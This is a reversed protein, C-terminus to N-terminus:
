AKSGSKPYVILCAGKGQDAAPTKGGKAEFWMPYWKESPIFQFGPQIDKVVVGRPYVNKVWVYHNGNVFAIVGAGQKVYKEMEAQTLRMGVAQAGLLEAAQKLGLMTTGQSDTGALQAIKAPPADIKFEALAFSLADPGCTNEASIAYFEKSSGRGLFFGVALGGGLALLLVIPLALKRAAMM